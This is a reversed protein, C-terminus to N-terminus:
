SSRASRVASAPCRTSRGTSGDPHILVLTNENPAELRASVPQTGQFTLRDGTLIWLGTEGGTRFTGDPRFEIVNACDGDDTWFGLLFESTVAIPSHSTPPARGPERPEASAPAAVPAICLGAAFASRAIRFWRM